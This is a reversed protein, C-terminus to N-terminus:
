QGFKRKGLNAKLLAAAGSVKGGSYLKDRLRDEEPDEDHMLPKSRQHAVLSDAVAGQDVMAGDGRFEHDGDDRLQRAVEPNDASFPDAPNWNSGGARQFADQAEAPSSHSGMERVIDTVGHKDMTSLVPARPDRAHPVINTADRAAPAPPLFASAIGRGKKKPPRGPM